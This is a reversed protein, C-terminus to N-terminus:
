LAIEFHHYKISLPRRQLLEHHTEFIYTLVCDRYIIPEEMERILFSAIGM